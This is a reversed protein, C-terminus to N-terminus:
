RYCKYLLSSLLFKFSFLFFFFPKFCVALLPSIRTMSSGFFGFPALRARLVTSSSGLKLVSKNVSFLFKISAILKLTYSLLHLSENAFSRLLSQFKAACCTSWDQRTALSSSAFSFGFPSLLQCRCALPATFIIVETSLLSESALMSISSPISLISPPTVAANCFTLTM